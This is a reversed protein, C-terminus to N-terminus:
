SSSPLASSRGAPQTSTWSPPVEVQLAAVVVSKAWVTPRSESLRKRKGGCSAIQRAGARCRPSARPAPGRRSGEVREDPDSPAVQVGHGHLIADEHAIAVHVGVVLRAPRSVDADGTSQLRAPPVQKQEDISVPGRTVAPKSRAQGLQEVAVAVAEHDLDAALTAGLDEGRDVVAGGAPRPWRARRAAARAVAVIPRVSSTQSM